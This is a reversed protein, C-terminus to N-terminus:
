ASWKECFFCPRFIFQFSSIRRLRCIHSGINNFHIISHGQLMRHQDGLFIQLTSTTRYKEKLKSQLSEESYVSSSGGNPEEMKILLEQLTYLECDGDKELWECLMRLFEAKEESSSWGEGYRSEQYVKGHMSFSMRIVEERNMKLGYYKQLFHDANFISCFLIYCTWIQRYQNKPRHCTATM